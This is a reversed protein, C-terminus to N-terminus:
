DDIDIKVVSNVVAIIKILFRQNALGSRAGTKDNKQNDFHKGSNGTEVLGNFVLDAHGFRRKIIFSILNIQCKALQYCFLVLHDVM